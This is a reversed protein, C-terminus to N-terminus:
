TLNQYGRALAAHFRLASRRRCLCDRPQVIRESLELCGSGALIWEPNEGALKKFFEPHHGHRDNMRWGALFTMGHRHCEDILVEIPMVGDDMMPVLRQHHPRVDYPCKDTRWFHTMAQSKRCWRISRAKRPTYAFSEDCSM